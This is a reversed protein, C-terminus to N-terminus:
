RQREAHRAVRARNGCSAKCWQQRGHDQVFYRVCRPAQCSRLRPALPGTLFDLVALALTGEVLVQGAAASTLSRRVGDDGVMVTWEPDLANVAAALREGAEEDSMRRQREVRSAPHPAVAAAFASRAAFRISRLREAEERTRPPLGPFHAALWADIDTDEAFHDAVGGQGDHAITGALALALDGDAGDPLVRM